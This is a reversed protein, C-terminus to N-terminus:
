GIPDDTEMIVDWGLGGGWLAEPNSSLTKSRCPQKVGVDKDDEANRSSSMMWDSSWGTCSLTHSVRHLTREIAEMDHRRIDQEKAANHGPILESLSNLNSLCSLKMDYSLSALM